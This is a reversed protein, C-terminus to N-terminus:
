IGFRKVHGPKYRFRIYICSLIYIIKLFIKRPSAGKIWKAMEVSYYNAGGGTAILRVLKYGDRQYAERAVKNKIHTHLYLMDVGRDSIEQNAKQSLAKYVGKGKYDPSVAVYCIYAADGTYYFSKYTRFVISLTGLLNKNEDIAVLCIGKEVEKKLEEASYDACLMRIGESKNSEHAHQHCTALQEWSISDPKHQVIIEKM